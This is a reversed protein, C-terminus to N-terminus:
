RQQDQRAEAVKPDRDTDRHPADNKDITDVITQGGAGFDREDEGFAPNGEASQRMDNERRKPERDSM